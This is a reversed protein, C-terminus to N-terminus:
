AKSGKSDPVLPFAPSLRVKMAVNFYVIIYSTSIIHQQKLTSVFTRLTEVNLCLEAIM